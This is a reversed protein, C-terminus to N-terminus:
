NHLTYFLQANQWSKIQRWKQRISTNSDEGNITTAQTTGDGRGNREEKIPWFPLDKEKTRDNTSFDKLYWM